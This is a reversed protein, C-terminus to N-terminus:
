PNRKMDHLQGVTYSGGDAKAHHEGCLAIMGAPEHHQRDRWPPDFHHWYLYPSGCAACGYNVERALQDRVAKPPTRDM